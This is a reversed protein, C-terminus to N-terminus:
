DSTPDLSVEVRGLIEDYNILLLDNKNGFLVVRGSQMQITVM